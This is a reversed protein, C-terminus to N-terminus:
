RAPSDSPKEAPSRTPWPVRRRHALAMPGPDSVSAVVATAGQISRNRRFTVIM